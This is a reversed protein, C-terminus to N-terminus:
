RRSSDSPRTTTSSLGLLLSAARQEDPRLAAACRAIARGGVVGAGAADPHQSMADGQPVERRAERGTGAVAAPGARHRGRAHAGQHDHCTGERRRESDHRGRDRAAMDGADTAGPGIGRGDVHATESQRALCGRLRRRADAAPSPFRSSASAPAGAATPAPVTAGGIPPAALTSATVMSGASVFERRTMAGADRGSQPEDPADM